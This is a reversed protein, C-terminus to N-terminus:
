AAGPTGVINPPTEGPLHLLNRVDRVGTVKRTAAELADRQAADEVRGRLEVVGDVVLVDVAGKPADAPRFIESEVKNKLTNDDDPASDGGAVVHKARAVIGQAQGGAGQVTGASQRTYKEAKDRAISRRRAGSDKDLFYLIAAGLGAGATFTTLKSM